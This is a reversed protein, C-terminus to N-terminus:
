PAVCMSVGAGTIVCCEWGGNFPTCTEPGNCWRSVGPIASGDDEIGADAVCLVTYDLDGSADVAPASAEAPECAIPAACRGGRCCPRNPTCSFSQDNLGPEQAARLAQNFAKLASANIASNPCQPTSCVNGSAVAVCDGDTSCTQDFDTVAVMCSATAVADDTVGTDLAAQADDGSPSVGSDWRAADGDHGSPVQDSSIRGGCGWLALTVPVAIALSAIHMRFGLGHVVPFEVCAEFKSDRRHEGFPGTDGSVRFKSTVTGQAM